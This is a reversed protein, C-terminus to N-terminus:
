SSGNQSFCKQLIFKLSFSRKQYEYRIILFKEQPGIVLGEEKLSGFYLVPGVM